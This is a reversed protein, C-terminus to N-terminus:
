GKRYSTEQDPRVHAAALAGPGASYHPGLVWRGHKGPEEKDRLGSDESNETAVSM